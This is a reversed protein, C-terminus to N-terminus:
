DVYDFCNAILKYEAQVRSTGRFHGFYFDHVPLSYPFILSLNPFSLYLVEEATETSLRLHALSGSAIFDRANVQGRGVRVMLYGCCVWLIAM